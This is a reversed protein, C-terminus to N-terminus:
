GALMGVLAEAQRRWTWDRVVWERGAAGMASARGPDDLLEVVAAAVAEPSSPEGVVLGTRGDQVAEPAGGSAGAIVPKGTAAAELYVMGLGEVDWGLRRTRAPMAFVDCAAYAAPLEGVSRPGTLVVHGALGLRDVRRVLHDAYRGGGVLLLAADPHRHLIRPMAEVLVDQGKRPVLRSICGIVQKGALGLADRLDSGDVAPTFRDVDVGPSLRRLDTVPGLLGHLRARTYDTIYTTVDLGAAIRRLVQRTGPSMAWGTEHGHTSGVLRRAGARRLQPAMLGLPAAAGFWVRDAGVRRMTAVVARTVAPTPLLMATPHRVVEFPSGADYASAGDSTSAFVTVDGPPLQDVIARVFTQIGGQRPPYDNTVVLIKM